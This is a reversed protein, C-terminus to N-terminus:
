LGASIGRFTATQSTTGSTATLTCSGTVGNAGSAGSGLAAATISFTTNSTTPLAGGALLNLGDSCNSVAQCKNALPVHGRVECGSYNVNMAESLQAAVGSASSQLADGRLDVFSPLAMASLVGLIVIVVILEIM